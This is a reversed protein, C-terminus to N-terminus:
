GPTEAEGLPSEDVTPGPIKIGLLRSSGKQQDFRIPWFHIPNEEDPVVIVQDPLAPRRPSSCARAAEGSLSRITMPSAWVFRSHQTSAPKSGLSSRSRPGANM